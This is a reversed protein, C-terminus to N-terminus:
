LAHWPCQDEGAALPTWVDATPGHYELDELTAAGLPVDRALAAVLPHQAAMAQLDSIRHTLVPRSAGTLIFLVRPFLPYWRLWAAGSPHRPRQRGAPQPEYAWLRAYEILKTALRESGMTARDVEIFARLKTRQGARILTYHLVADAILKEGDNLPHAVEPTWDLPGHEDGRRRADTAFALHARLV